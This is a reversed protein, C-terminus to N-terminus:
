PRRGARELDIWFEEVNRVGRDLVASYIDAASFDRRYRPHQWCRTKIELITSKTADTLRSAINESFRRVQEFGDRNTQWLDIKWAAKGEDGLYIGWYLGAPLGKTMVRTEDRFHMRHPTLLRAVESGLEFFVALDNNTRVLHLDLDRWTMLGLAHSGMVHLEGYRELLPRLGAELLTDAEEHLQINLLFENRM